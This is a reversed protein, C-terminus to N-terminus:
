QIVIKGIGITTEQDKLQYLYIGNPLNNRNLTTKSGVIQIEQVKKGFVNFIVLNTQENVQYGGIDITASYSFPNPYINISKDVFMRDILATGVCGTQLMVSLRRATLFSKLGPAEKGPAITVAFNINNDFNLDTYLKATDAYVYPKIWNYLSDILEFLYTNGFDGTQFACIKNLYQTMYAPDEIMRKVLTATDTLPNPPPNPLYYVPLNQKNVTLISWSGSGFASNLDWAIWYFKKDTPNSYIYFNNAAYEYSDFNVFLNNAAWMGIYYDSALVADLSDKLNGSSTNNIVDVLNLFDDWNNAIENTRLELNDYYNAKINGEWALSANSNAAKFLNGNDSGFRTDLFVIDIQEVLTYFGWYTNNIYVETYTCRPAFLGQKNLFDLMVKERMFTPDSYGNNLNIKRLGDFNQGNVYLNLDLKLSLKNSTDKIQYYSTNGKLRVGVFPMNLADIRVSDAPLYQGLAAEHLTKLSDLWNSQSFYLDVRHIVNSKFLYDGPNQSWINSIALYFTLIVFASRRVAM